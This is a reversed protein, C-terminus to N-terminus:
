IKEIKKSLFFRLRSKSGAFCPDPNPNLMPDEPISKLVGFQPFVSKLPKKNLYRFRLNLTLENHCFLIFFYPTVIAYFLYFTSRYAM